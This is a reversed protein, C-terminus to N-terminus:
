NLYDQMEQYCKIAYRLPKDKEKDSNLFTDFDIDDTREICNNLVHREKRITKNVTDIVVVIVNNFTSITVTIENGNINDKKIERKSYFERLAYVISEKGYELNSKKRYKENFRQKLSMDNADYVDVLTHGYYILQNYKEILQKTYDSLIEKKFNDIISLLHKAKNVYENYDSETIFGNDLPERVSEKFVDIDSTTELKNDERIYEFTEIDIGIPFTFVIDGHQFVNHYMRIDEQNGIENEVAHNLFYIVNQRDNFFGKKNISHQIALGTEKKQNVRDNEILKNFLILKNSKEM